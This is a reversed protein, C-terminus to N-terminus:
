DDERLIEAIENFGKEAALDAPLKGGEMRLNVEAGHELLLIILEINGLQAATHLPAMGAKQCVNPYAGADLLMKSIQLNNSAVASHIPFVNFGNKSAINVDAGKMVLFRALEEHGFYCALGLPTFGDESYTNISGPNQFILLSATDFKGVACAEFLTLDDTFELILNAIQQKKYYCALLLPSIYHSTNTNALQPNQLLIEKVAQFDGKEIQEELQAISM